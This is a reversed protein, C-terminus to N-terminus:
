DDARKKRAGQHRARKDVSALLERGKTVMIITAFIFICAAGIKTHRGRFVEVVWFV